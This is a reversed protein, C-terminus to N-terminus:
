GGAIAPTISIEDGNKLPTQRNQLFKIDEDNLHVLIFRRVEGKEDMLREKVGPYRSQLATLAEDVTNGEVDVLEENNTLKRLPTPVRIKVKASM